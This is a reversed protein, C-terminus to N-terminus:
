AETLEQFYYDSIYGVFQETIDRTMTWKCNQLKDSIKCSKNILRLEKKIDKWLQKAYVNSKIEDQNIEMRFADVLEMSGIININCVNV